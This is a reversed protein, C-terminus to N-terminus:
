SVPGEISIGTVDQIWDIFQDARVYIGGNGCLQPPFHDFDKLGRSTVGLLYYPGEDSEIYLPGGSDGRCTDRRIGKHGAVLEINKKCRYKVQDEDTGCNLTMIPVEAKRKLGYDTSGQVDTTGFGVVIAKTGKVEKGQAIHRKTVKSAHELVLVMLDVDPHTHVSTVAIEEGKSLKSTDNGKLFVRTIPTDPTHCHKATLVLNPAILTGSCFYGHFENGGVACCDPFEKTPKGGFIEEVGELTLPPFAKPENAPLTEAANSTSATTEETTGASTEAQQLQSVDKVLQEVRRKIEELELLISKYDAM